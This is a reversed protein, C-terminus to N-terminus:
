QSGGHTRFTREHPAINGARGDKTHPVHKHKPLMLTSDGEWRFGDHEAPTRRMECMIHVLQHGDAHWSHRSLIAQKCIDCYRTPLNSM